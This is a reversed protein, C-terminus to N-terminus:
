KKLYQLSIVFKNNQTSQTNSVITLLFSGVLRYFVKISIKAGFIMNIEWRIRSINFLYQFNTTKPVKPIKPVSWAYRLCYSVRINIQRCVYFWGLGKNKKFINCKSSDQLRIPWSCKPCYSRFLFKALCESQKFLWSNFSSENEM